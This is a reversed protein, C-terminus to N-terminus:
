ADIKHDFLNRMKKRALEKVKCNTTIKLVEKKNECKQGCVRRM